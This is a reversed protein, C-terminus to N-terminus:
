RGLLQRKREEYRQLKLLKDFHQIATINGGEAATKTALDIATQSREAGLSFHYLIASGEKAAADRLLNYDLEMIRAISRLSRGVSALDEIQKLQDPTLDM